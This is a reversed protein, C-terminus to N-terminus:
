YFTYPYTTWWRGGSRCIAQKNYLDKQNKTHNTSRLTPIIQTSRNLLTDLDILRLAASPHPLVTSTPILINRTSCTVFIAVFVIYLKRPPPIIAVFQNDPLVPNCPIDPVSVLCSELNTILSLNM